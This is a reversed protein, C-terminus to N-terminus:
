AGRDQDGGIHDNREGIRGDVLRGHPQPQPLAAELRDLKGAKLDSSRTFAAPPALEATPSPRASARFTPPIQRHRSAPVPMKKSPAVLARRGTSTSSAESPKDHAVGLLAVHEHAPRVVLEIMERRGLAHQPEAVHPSACHERPELHAIRRKACAISSADTGTSRLPAVSRRPRSLTTAQLTAAITDSTSAARTRRAPARRCAQAAPAASRRASARRPRPYAPACSARCPRRWATREFAAAAARIFRCAARRKRLSIPLSPLSPRSQRDREFAFTTRRLSAFATASGPPRM